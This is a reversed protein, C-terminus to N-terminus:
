GCSGTPATAPVKLFHPEGDLVVREFRSGSRADAPYVQRRATAGATLAAISPEVRPVLVAAAPTM